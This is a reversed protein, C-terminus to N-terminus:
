ATDIEGFLPIFTRAAYAVCTLHASVSLYSKRSLKMFVKAQLGCHRRSDRDDLTKLSWVRSELFCV